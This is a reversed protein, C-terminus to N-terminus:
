PEASSARHVHSMAGPQRGPAQHEHHPVRPGPQPGHTSRITGCTTRKPETMRITPEHRCHRAAHRRADRSAAPCRWRQADAGTGPGCNLGQPETTADQEQTPLKQLQKIQSAGFHDFFHAISQAFFKKRVKKRSKKIEKIRVVKKRVKVSQPFKVNRSPPKLKGEDAAFNKASRRRLEM